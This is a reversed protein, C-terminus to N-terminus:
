FETHFKRSYAVTYVKSLDLSQPTPFYLNVMAKLVRDMPFVALEQALDQLGCCHNRMFLTHFYATAKCLSAISDFLVACLPVVM